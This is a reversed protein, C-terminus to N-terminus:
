CYQNMGKHSFQSVEQIQGSMPTVREIKRIGACKSWNLGVFYPLQSGSGFQDINASAGFLVPYPTNWTRHFDFPAAVGSILRVDVKECLEFPLNIFLGQDKEQAATANARVVCRAESVFCPIGTTIVHKFAKFSVKVGVPLSALKAAPAM